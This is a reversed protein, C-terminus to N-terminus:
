KHKKNVTVKYIIIKDPKGILCHCYKIWNLINNTKYQKLVNNDKQALGTNYDFTSPLWCNISENFLDDIFNSDELAAIDAADAFDIAGYLLAHRYGVTIYDGFSNKLIIDEHRNISEEQEDTIAQM